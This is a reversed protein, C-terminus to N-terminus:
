HTAPWPDTALRSCTVVDIRTGDILFKEREVGEKVFGAAAAVAGSAPNNSRYGLELRYLGDATLLDNCFQRVLATTIGRGRADRHAWYLVWANLNPADIAAGALALVHGSGSDVAVAARASPRSLNEIYRRADELSAVDGQRAMDPHSSFADLIGEADEAM